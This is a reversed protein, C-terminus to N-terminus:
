EVFPELVEAGELERSWWAQPDGEGHDLMAAM